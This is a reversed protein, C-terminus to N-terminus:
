MKIELVKTLVIFWTCCFLDALKADYEVGWAYGRSPTEYRRWNQKTAKVDNVTQVADGEM